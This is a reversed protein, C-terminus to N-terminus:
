RKRAAEEDILKEWKRRIIEPSFDKARAKAKEAYAKRQPEDGLLTLMAQALMTEGPTEPADAPLFGGECVPVLVGYPAYEIDEARHSLDTDPALIERPGSLCDASIVPLGVAMAELLANPMGEYRSPLVFLDARALLAHPEWCFGLISVNERIGMDRALAEYPKPDGGGLLLLRAKPYEPLVERFARLLNWLGKQAVLSGMSAIIPEGELSRTEGSQVARELLTRGDVMNEIAVCKRAWKRKEMDIAAAKSVAVVADARSYALWAKFRALRGMPRSSMHTRLSVVTAGTGRSLTNALNADELFSICVDPKLRKKLARLAKARRLDNITGAVAGRKRPLRLDYLTGGHPYAADDARFTVFSVDYRDQLAIAINGAARQAGGDKLVSVIIFLKTKEAM